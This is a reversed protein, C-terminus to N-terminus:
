KSIHCIKSSYDPLEAAQCRILLDDFIADWSQRLSHAIGRAAIRNGFETDQYIQSLANSFANVNGPECRLGNWGHEVTDIVGGADACVVPTGCAMAELVVNGFTETSSPFLFVNAAAYWQQLAPMSTFGLFHVPIRERKAQQKLLEASPGDGAIVFLAEPCLDRQFKAFSALAM